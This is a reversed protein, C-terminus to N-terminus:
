CSPRRQCLMFCSFYCYIEIISLVYLDDDIKAVVDVGTSVIALKIHVKKQKQQNNIYSLQLKLHLNEKMDDNYSKKDKLAPILLM